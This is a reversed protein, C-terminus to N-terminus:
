PARLDEYQPNERMFQAVFPCRPAVKMGRSRIDDLVASVLRAGNGNGRRHQPVETHYIAVVNGEERVLAHAADGDGLDFEYRDPTRTLRM